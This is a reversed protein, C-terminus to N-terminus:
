FIRSTLSRSSVTMSLKLSGKFINPTLAKQNEINSRGRYGSTLIHEAPRLPVSPKWPLEDSGRNQVGAQVCLMYVSNSVEWVIWLEM